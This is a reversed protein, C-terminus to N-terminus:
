NWKGEGVMEDLLIIALAAELVPVARIAICPDHRGQITLKVNEKKSISFSDQEVGISATPKMGVKFIIPMGNSIGGNIGGAHNTLTKVVGGEISIPDNHQSGLMKTGEFGTGFEIGRVGPIGFVLKAIRNELGEFIPNGLGGPVGIAACEIVGGVSDLNKKLNLILEEMKSGAENDIVPLKKEGPSLLEKLEIHAPNWKKDEIKGVSSLHAGIHINKRSLIQKAIGGAVCLPATLRGSFHGGGRMDVYDGYKLHSTYDAHSPRPVDKLNSYDKSRQDKNQIIAALPSGTIRNNYVGSLFEPLDEEIRGTTLNSLGPARRKLFVNLEDMDIFEGSPLGDIVVGIAKGHSEGFISIKINKGITSSM